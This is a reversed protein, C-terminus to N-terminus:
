MEVAHALPGAVLGIQWQRAGGARLFEAVANADHVNQQQALQKVLKPTLVLDHPIVLGAAVEAIVAKFADLRAKTLGKDIGTRPSSGQRKPPLMSQPVRDAARIVRVLERADDTPLSSDAYLIDRVDTVRATALKVLTRDSLVRGPALDRDEALDERLGWMARVRGLGRASKVSGIGHVRRWPEAHTAPEFDLLHAFEEEAYGWKGAARLREELANRIEILVEVDLAAYALMDHPLPRRSWDAASHEKALRVGVLEEALSALGFREFGLLRAALETDFLADPRMGREALCGLDQTAAHLVWEVGALAANVSTLVPLAEPDLLLTGADARKLQILFARNGYRIGSAREADVAVPGSGHALAAVAANLEEHTDIVPPVGGAPESLLPVTM